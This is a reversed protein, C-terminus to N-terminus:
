ICVRYTPRADPPKKKLVFRARAERLMNHPEMCRIDIGKCANPIKIKGKSDSEIENTVVTHHGALAQAVLYYDAKKLFSDVAYREYNQNEAWKSVKKMAEEIIDSSVTDDPSLFFDSGRAEAWKSLEDNGSKLEDYVKEVSFVMKNEHEKVLWDWFAPCFDMGYHSNKARIFVDTDLLYSM